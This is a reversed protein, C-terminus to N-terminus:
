TVMHYIHSLAILCAPNLFGFVTPYKRFYGFGRVWKNRVMIRLYVSGGDGYTSKNRM